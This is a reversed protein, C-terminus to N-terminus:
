ERKMGLQEALVTATVIRTNGHRKLALLDDKDGTVLWDAKGAQCLSLLFDDRPDPSRRVHPLPAPMDAVLAIQKVLRGVENSRILVRMKDGRTVERIEDLQLAHSVLM